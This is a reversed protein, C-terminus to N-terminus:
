NEQVEYGPGLSICTPNNALQKDFNKKTINNVAGVGHFWERGFLMNFNTTTPM